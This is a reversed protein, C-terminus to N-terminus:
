SRDARRQGMVAADRSPYNYFRDELQMLALVGYNNPSFNCIRLIGGSQHARRHLLVLQGVLHSSLIVTPSLELVIRYRDYQVALQWAFEALPPTLDAGGPQQGLVLLLWEPCEPRTDVQLTWGPAFSSM